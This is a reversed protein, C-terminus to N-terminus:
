EKGVVIRLVILADDAGIAGDGNLDAATKEKATLQQKGVVSKLIILADAAAASGNGDVDGRVGNKLRNFAERVAVLKDQNTVEKAQSYGLDSLAIEADVIDMEDAETVDEPAPLADIMDIVDQIQKQYKAKVESMQALLGELKEDNYVHLKELDNLADFDAKLQMLDAEDSLEMERQNSATLLVNDIIIGEGMAADFCNYGIRLVIQKFIGEDAFDVKPLPIRIHNWEGTKLNFITDVVDTQYEIWNDINNDWRNQLSFTAWSEETKNAHYMEDTLYLDFEVYDYASIFWENGSRIMIPIDCDADYKKTYLAAYSGETVPDDVMEFGLAYSNVNAIFEADNIYHSECDNFIEHLDLFTDIREIIDDIAEQNVEQNLDEVVDAALVNTTFCAACLLAMVFCLIRKM